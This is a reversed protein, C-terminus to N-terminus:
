LRRAIIPAINMVILLRVIHHLTIYPLNAGVLLAILNIETQGGPGFALLIDLVKFDLSYFIIAIFIACLIFLIIFHGFTALLTKYIIKFPVNRFTFGIIVGFVIQIFKLFEDPIAVTFVGTSFLFISLIMPGMLFAATVKIRKAFIAAFISLTYLVFFEFFDINKLPTTLLQNGRIDIQFIYQIIFPLSVVVFFLRSSQMLTIKTTDAKLEEGIIVMEIVGGPMSGLYSTKLDYKLVKYYYYTGFFIVLITFPVVLLLSVFYHPIYNLIEPTFASGIAIGILIRAPPSFTKPSIIPLKEFRISLTTAFISGLLWPLPLHFYIFVISGLLGILLALLMKALNIM